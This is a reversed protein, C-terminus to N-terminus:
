CFDTIFFSIGDTRFLVANWVGSKQPGQGAPYDPARNCMTLAYRLFDTMAGLPMNISFINSIREEPKYHKPIKYIQM